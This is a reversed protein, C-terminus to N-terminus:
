LFFLYTKNKEACAIVVNSTGIINLNISLDIKKMYKWLDQFVLWIYLTIQNIKLTHNLKKLDTIDM